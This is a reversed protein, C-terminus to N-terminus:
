DSSEPGQRKGALQDPTPKDSSPVTKLFALVNDIQDKDLAYRFAPMRGGGNAIFAKVQDEGVSKVTEAGLWPGMTKYTPQGVGDHCYACKQLWIVRGSREAGSLAPPSILKKHDYEKTIVKVPVAKGDESKEQQTAVGHTDPGNAAAQASVSRDLVMSAILTGAVAGAFIWKNTNM